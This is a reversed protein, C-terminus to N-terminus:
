DAIILHDEVAQQYAGKILERVIVAKPSEYPFMNALAHLQDRTEQDFKFTFTYSKNVTEKAEKM